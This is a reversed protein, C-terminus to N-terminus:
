PFLLSLFFLPFHIFFPDVVRKYGERVSGLNMPRVSGFGIAFWAWARRKGEKKRKSEAGGMISSCGREEVNM